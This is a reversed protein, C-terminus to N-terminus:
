KRSRTVRTTPAAARTRRRTPSATSSAVSPTPSGRESAATRRTRRPTAEEDEDAVSSAVSQARTTRKPRAKGRTAGKDEPDDLAAKAASRRASATEKDEKSEKEDADKAAAAKSTKAKTTKTVTAKKASKAKTTKKPEPEFAGPHAAPADGGGRARRARRHFCALFRAHLAEAARRAQRCPAVPAEARARARLNYRGSPREEPPESRRTSRRLRPKEDEVDSMDEDGDEILKPTPADKILLPEPEDEILLPQPTGEKETEDGSHEDVDMESATPTPSPSRRSARLPTSRAPTASARASRRSPGEDDLIRKPQKKAPAPRSTVPPHFPSAVMTPSTRRPPSAPPSPSRMSASRQSGSVSPPAASGGVVSAATSPPALRPSEAFRPPGGFGSGPRQPTGLVRTALSPRVPTPAAIPAPTSSEAPKAPEQAPAPLAKPAEQQSQQPESDEAEVVVWDKEGQDGLLIRRQAAPLIDIFERVMERRRQRDAGSESLEKDLALTEEYKGAHILRLTVLDHLLSRAPAPIDRPPHALFHVLHAHEEDSLVLHLLEKLARPQATHAGAGAPSRPAGLAWCWVAERSRAREGPAQARIRTFATLMGFNAAALLAADAADQSSPPRVSLLTHVLELAQPASVLTVLAAVIDPLFNVDFIAPDTLAEVALAWEGHDLAWYGDMLTRWARPICRRRAWQAAKSSPTSPSAARSGDVDMDLASNNDLDKLLYYIFCDRKLRDVPLEHIAQLLKRQASPSTPPYLSAWDTSPTNTDALALLRDFFLQGQPYTPRRTSIDEARPYPASVDFHRLLTSPIGESM